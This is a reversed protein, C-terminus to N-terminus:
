LQPLKKQLVFFPCFKLATRHCEFSERNLLYNILLNKHNSKRSPLM